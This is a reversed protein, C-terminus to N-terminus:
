FLSRALKSLSLEELGLEHRDVGLDLADVTVPLNMHTCYSPHIYSDSLVTSISIYKKQVFHRFNKLHFYNGRGYVLEYLSYIPHKINIFINYM